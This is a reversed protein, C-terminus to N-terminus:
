NNLLIQFSDNNVAPNQRILADVLDRLARVIRGDARRDDLEAVGQIQLDDGFANFFLPLDLTQALQSAVLRLAIEDTFGQAM